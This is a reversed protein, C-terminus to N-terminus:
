SRKGSAPEIQRALGRLCELSVTIVQGSYPENATSSVPQPSAVRDTVVIEIPHESVYNPRYRGGRIDAVIRALAARVSLQALQM